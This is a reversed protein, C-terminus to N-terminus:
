YNKGMPSVNCIYSYKHISYISKIFIYIHIYLYIDVCVYHTNITYNTLKYISQIHKHQYM